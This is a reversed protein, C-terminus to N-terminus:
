IKEFYCFLEWDTVAKDNEKNELFVCHMLYDVVQDEFLSRAAKSNNFLAAAESLFL